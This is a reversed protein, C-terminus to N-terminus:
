TRCWWWVEGGGNSRLAAGGGGNSRLAADGGGNSRLAADGGCRVVVMVGLHPM